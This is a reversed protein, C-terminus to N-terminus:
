PATDSTRKLYNCILNKLKIPLIVQLGILAML